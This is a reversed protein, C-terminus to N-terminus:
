HLSRRFVAPTTGFARRFARTLHAQDYFGCDLAIAAIPESSHALRAAADEVRLRRLHEGLSEGRERRFLQALRAPEARLAGALSHLDRPAGPMALLGCAQRVLQSARGARARRGGGARAFRALMELAHAEVALASFPDPAELEAAIRAGLALFEAGAAHPLAAELAPAGELAADALTVILKRAGKAGFRQAHAEGGRCYIVHGCELARGRGRVQEEYGGSLTLCLSPRDHRHPAIALAPAYTAVRVSAIPGSM